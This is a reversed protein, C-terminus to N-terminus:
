LGGLAASMLEIIDDVSARHEPACLTKEFVPYLAHKGIIPHDALESKCVYGTLSDFAASPFESYRYFLKKYSIMTFLMVGFSWMDHAKLLKCWNYNDCENSEEKRTSAMRVNLTEPACYPRTGGTGTDHHARGCMGFDILYADPVSDRRATFPEDRKFEKIIVINDPKIDGHVLNKDHCFRISRAVSLMIATVIFDHDKSAIHSMRYWNGISTSGQLRPQIEITRLLEPSAVTASQHTPPTVPIVTNGPYFIYYWFPTVIKAETNKGFGLLSYALMARMEVYYDYKVIYQTTKFVGTKSRPSYTKIPTFVYTHIRYYFLRCLAGVYENFLKDSKADDNLFNKVHMADSSVIYQTASKEYRTNLECITLLEKRLSATDEIFSM